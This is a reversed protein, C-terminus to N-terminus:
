AYPVGQFQSKVAELGELAHLDNWDTPKSTSDKFWPLAITCGFRKAAESAKIRGINGIHPKWRDDDAAITLTLDPYKRALSEIVPELNGADFAVICTAGTAMHISAMTAYGEGVIVSGGIEGITHFCGRKKGGMTFCKFGDAHITQLSWLTGAVDRLPIVVSDNHYRIGFAAVQKRKLYLSKGTEPIADWLQRCRAAVEAYAREEEQKQQTCLRALNARREAQQKVDLPKGNDAFWTHSERTQHDGFFAVDDLQRLWYRNNKGYRQFGTSTPKAKAPPTPIGVAAMADQISHGM